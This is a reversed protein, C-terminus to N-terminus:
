RSIGQRRMGAMPRQPQAEEGAEELEEEVENLEGFLDALPSESHDGERMELAERCEAILTDLMHGDRGHRGVKHSAEKVMRLGELLISLYGRRYDGARATKIAESLAKLAEEYERSADPYHM